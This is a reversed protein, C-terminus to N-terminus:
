SLTLDNLAPIWLGAGLFYRDAAESGTNSWGGYVQWPKDETVALEIDSLGQEDGPEFVAEIRRYGHRNLWDLDEELRRVEIREGPASRVGRRLREGREPTTGSATLVGTRFEIVRLQLVGSTIEQPPVTVSVFPHGSDRWAGAIASQIEAIRALSLPQSLFPALAANLETEPAGDIGAIAIGASPRDLVPASAGILRIGAIDVGLPTEDREGYDAPGVTLVAPAPEPVAP